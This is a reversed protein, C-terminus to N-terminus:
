QSWTEKEIIEILKKLHEVREREKRRNVLRSKRYIKGQYTGVHSSGVMLEMSNHLGRVRADLEAKLEPLCVSLIDRVFKGQNFSIRM